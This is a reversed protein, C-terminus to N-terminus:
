NSVVIQVGSASSPSGPSNPSMSLGHDDDDDNNNNNNSSINNNSSNILHNGSGENHVVMEIPDNINIEPINVTGNQPEESPFPHGKQAKDKKISPLLHDLWSLEYQTFICDLIKRIFCIALVMIPFAISTEKFSKIIWLGALCMIQILTFIHVRTLQVHRLYAHDPQYKPSILYLLFRDVLQMGSLARVGMFLFVGYLVPLPIFKLVSTLLVSLGSLIGVLLATVRQERVGLFEPKEGPATCDSEVKLSMVHALASVTAAVYWPLGLVSMVLILIALVLLDLHYGFGKKLKHEKRNVIVATIQQDMFILITALTAPVAAALCLWWPNKDSMPGIFWPRDLRTPRFEEPVELKPTDVGLLVDVGVVILIALLVGFDSFMRRVVNPFFISNRFKVLSYAIVFTFLFELISLFFVDPKYEKCAFPAPTTITTMNSGNLGMESSTNAALTVLVSSLNAAATSTFPAMTTVDTANLLSSTNIGPSATTTLNLLEVIQSTTAMGDTTDDAPCAPLDSGGLHAPYKSNIKIVKAFAEYIFIIAILCAFCEETFRTIFRTLASLDFAVILLLISTTWIGIWVRFPLFDWNQDKCFDFIITELVLMPGTSGLINLPQGAFLAFVVGSLAAALICEMTGMYQDTEQGLLGGFTVNPTLTALFLFVTSALCQVHLSDKFDSAFWPLKRKVDDIVGGFLRGTRELGEIEEEHLMETEVHVRKEELIRKTPRRFDQPPVKAPPEIRTKADWVGSPLATLHNTFETLGALIEFRTSCHDALERFIPDTMLSGVCRGIETVDFDTTIEPALCVFIFQTALRVECLWGLHRSPSLRVLGILPRRLCTLEGILVNTAVANKPIKRQLRVNKRATRPTGKQSGVDSIDENSNHPSNDRGSAYSELSQLSVTSGGMGRDRVALLNTGVSAPRPLKREHVHRHPKMLAMKIGDEHRRDLYGDQIWSSTLKDVISGFDVVDPDLLLPAHRLERKLTSMARFSLAPVHPKSWRNAEEDLTEEFRVWRAVEMWIIESGSDTLRNMQCFMPLVADKNAGSELVRSVILEDLQRDHDLNDDM